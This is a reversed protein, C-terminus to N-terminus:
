KNLIKDLKIKRIYVNPILKETNKNTTLDIVNDILKDSFRKTEKNTLSYDEYIVGDDNSNTLWSNNKGNDKGRIEVSVRHYYKFLFYERFVLFRYTYEEEDYKISKLTVDGRDDQNTITYDGVLTNLYIKRYTDKILEENALM